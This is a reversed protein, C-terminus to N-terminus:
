WRGRGKERGTVLQMEGEGKEKEREKVRCMGKERGREVM